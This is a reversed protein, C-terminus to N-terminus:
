VFERFAISGPDRPHCQYVRIECGRKDALDADDTNGTMIDFLSSRNSAGGRRLVTRAVKMAYPELTKYGMLYRAVTNNYQRQLEPKCGMLMQMYALKESKLTISYRVNV